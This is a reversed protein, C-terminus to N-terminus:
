RLGLGGSEDQLALRVLLVIDLVAVLPMFYLEGYLIYPLGVYGALWLLGFIIATRPRLEIWARLLLVVFVGHAIWTAISISGM